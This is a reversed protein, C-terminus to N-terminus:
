ASRSAQAARAARNTLEASSTWRAAETEVVRMAPGAETAFMWRIEDDLDKDKVIGMGIRVGAVGVGLSSGLILNTGLGLGLAVPKVMGSELPDSAAVGVGM